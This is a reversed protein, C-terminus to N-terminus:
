GGVFLRGVDGPRWGTPQKLTGSQDSRGRSSKALTRELPRPPTGLVIKVRGERELAEYFAFENEM